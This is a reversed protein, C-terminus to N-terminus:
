KNVYIDGKRKQVMNLSIHVHKNYINSLYLVNNTNFWVVLIEM